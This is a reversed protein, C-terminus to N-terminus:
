GALRGPAMAILLQGGFYLFLSYRNWSLPRWFRNAALIVDSLYFLVAGGLALLAAAPPVSPSALLSAAAGLMLSIVVIYAVVPWRLRGLGPALLRYFGLAPLLLVVLVLYDLESRAGHAAFTAAYAIHGLLFLVLGALFARPRQQFM